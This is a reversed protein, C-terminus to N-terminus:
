HPFVVPQNDWLHFPFYPHKQGRINQAQMSLRETMDLQKPGQLSYGALSRQGHFKGPLFVSIPQNGNGVGPRIILVMTYM